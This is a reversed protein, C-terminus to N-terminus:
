NRLLRPGRFLTSGQSLLPQERFPIFKAQNTRQHGMDGWMPNESSFIHTQVNSNLPQTRDQKYTNTKNERSFQGIVGHGRSAQRHNGNSLAEYMTITCDSYNVSKPPTHLSFLRSPLCQHSLKQESYSM